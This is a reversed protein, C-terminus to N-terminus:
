RPAPGRPDLRLPTARAAALLRFARRHLADLEDAGAGRALAAVRPDLDVTRRREARQRSRRRAAQLLAVAALVATALILTLWLAERVAVLFSADGLPGLPEAAAPGIPLLALARASPRLPATRPSVSKCNLSM